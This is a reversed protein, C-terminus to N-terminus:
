LPPLPGSRVIQLDLSLLPRSSASVFVFQEGLMADVRELQQLGENPLAQEAREKLQPNAVLEVNAETRSLQLISRARRGAHRLRSLLFSHFHATHTMEPKQLM